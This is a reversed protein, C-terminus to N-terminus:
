LVMSLLSNEDVGLEKCFRKTISEFKLLLRIKEQQQVMVSM